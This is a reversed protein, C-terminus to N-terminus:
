GAIRAIYQAMAAQESCLNEAFIAIGASALVWGIAGHDRAPDTPMEPMNKTQKGDIQGRIIQLNQLPNIKTASKGNIDAGAKRCDM